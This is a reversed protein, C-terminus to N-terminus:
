RRYHWRKDSFWNRFRFDLKRQGVLRSVSSSAGSSALGKSLVILSFNQCDKFRKLVM